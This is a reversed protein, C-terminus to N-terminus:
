NLNITLSKFWLWTVAGSTNLLQGLLQQTGAAMAFDGQEAAFSLASRKSGDLHQVDAGVDISLRRTSCPGLQPPELATVTDSTM